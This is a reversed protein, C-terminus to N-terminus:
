LSHEKREQKEQPEQRSDTGTEAPPQPLGPDPQVPLEEAPAPDEAAPEPQAPVEGASSSEEPGSQQAEAELGPEPRETEPAAGGKLTRAPSVTALNNLSDNIGGLEQTLEKQMEEVPELAERLPRQAENLPEIVSERIEETAEGMADKFVRLMSGLSRAAAPLKDPGIVLLAVIFIVILEGFGFKM